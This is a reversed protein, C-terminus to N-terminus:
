DVDTHVVEDEDDGESNELEEKETLKKHIEGYAGLACLLGATTLTSGVFMYAAIGIVRLVKWM